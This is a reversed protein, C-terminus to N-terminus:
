ASLHFFTIVYMVHSTNWAPPRQSKSSPKPRFGYVVRGGLGSDQDKAEVKFVVSGPKATESVKVTKFKGRVPIPKVWEPALKNPNAAGDIMKGNPDPSGVSSVKCLKCFFMRLPGLMQIEKFSISTIGHVINQLYGREFKGLYTIHNTEISIVKVICSCISEYTYELMRVFTWSVVAIM